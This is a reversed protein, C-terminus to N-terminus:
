DLHVALFQEIGSLMHEVDAVTFENNSGHAAGNRIGAFATIQKQVIKNYIGSKTLDSNMKDLKSYEINERDCLERLATELVTGAIVAAAVYYGNKLLECAQDLESDFVEAQVITKYSSLYGGEFDEQTATFVAKLAKFKTLSGSWSSDDEAKVFEKYHESNDGGAKIILNKVKVRWELFVDADVNDSRGFMESHSTKHTSIVRESQEGLEVFRKSLKKNL